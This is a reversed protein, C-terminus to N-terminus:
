VHENIFKYIDAVNYFRLLFRYLTENTQKNMKYDLLVPHTSRYYQSSCLNIFQYIKVKLEHFLNKMETHPYCDFFNNIYIQDNNHMETLAILEILRLQITPQNGKVMKFYLYRPSLLKVRVFCKTHVFIWGPKYHYLFLGDNPTYLEPKKINCEPYITKLDFDIETFSNINKFTAIHYIQPRQFVVTSSIEPHQIVFFFVLDHKDCDQFKYGLMEGTEEFLQGFSKKDPSSWFAQYADISQNTSVHWENNYSWVRILTGDVLQETRVTDDNIFAQLQNKLYQPTTIDNLLDITETKFDPMDIELSKPISPCVIKCNDNIDFVLGTAHRITADKFDKDVNKGKRYSLLALNDKCSLHLNKTKALNQIERGM